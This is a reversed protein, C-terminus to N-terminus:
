RGNQKIKDLHFLMETQQDEPLTDLWDEPSYLVGNLFFKNDKSTNIGEVAPGDERHLYDSKIYYKDGDSIVYHEKDTIIEPVIHLDRVNCVKIGGGQFLTVVALIFGDADLYAHIIRGPIMEMTSTPNNMNWPQIGGLTVVETPYQIAKGILGDVIM